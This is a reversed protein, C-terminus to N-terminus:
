VRSVRTAPLTTKYRTEKKVLASEISSNREQNDINYQYCDLTNRSTKHVTCRWIYIGNVSPRSCMIVCACTDPRWELKEM